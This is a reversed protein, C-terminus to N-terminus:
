QPKYAGKSSDINVELDSVLVTAAALTRSITPELYIPLLAMLNKKHNRM